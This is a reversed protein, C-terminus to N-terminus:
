LKPQKKKDIKVVICHWPEYNGDIYQIDTNYFKICACIYIQKVILLNITKFTAFHKIYMVYMRITNLNNSM